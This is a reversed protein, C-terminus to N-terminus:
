WASFAAVIRGDQLVVCAAPLRPDAGATRAAREADGSTVASQARAARPPGVAGLLLAWLAPWTPRVAAHLAPRARPMGRPNRPRANDSVQPPDRTNRGDVGWVSPGCM